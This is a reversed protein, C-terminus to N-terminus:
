KMSQPLIWQPFQPFFSFPCHFLVEMALTLWERVWWSQPGTMSLIMRLCPGAPAEARSMRLNMPKWTCLSHISLGESGEPLSHKGPSSPTQTLFKNLYCQGLSRFPVAISLAADWLSAKGFSRHFRLTVPRNNLVWTLSLTSSLSPASIFEWKGLFAKAYWPSQLVSCM